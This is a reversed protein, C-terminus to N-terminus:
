RQEPFLTGWSVVHGIDIRLLPLAELRHHDYQDYKERLAAVADVTDEGPGVVAATGRVQVWGLASWDEHYHDAVLSVYGNEEIDRVRRIERRDADKPKEDLPTVVDGKTLAFCCPVVHPRGAGDATALRGARAQSLYRREASTMIM